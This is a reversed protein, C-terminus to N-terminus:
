SQEDECTSKWDKYDRKGREPNGQWWAVRFDDFKLSSGLRITWRVNKHNSIRVHPNEIKTTLSFKDRKSREPNGQWWAVRTGFEVTVNGNAAANVSRKKKLGPIVITVKISSLGIEETTVNIKGASKFFYIDITKNNKAM